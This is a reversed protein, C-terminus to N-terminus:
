GPGGGAHWSWRAARATQATVAASAALRHGVVWLVEDGRAVVPVGPRDARPVGRERLLDAVRQRGDLGLPRIRDGPKWRRVEAGQTRDADVAESWADTGFTKPVSSLPTVVLTGALTAGPGFRLADPERWVRLGGSEVRGGVPADVLAALRGVLAQSRTAEPAWQAVAEALVAHRADDALPALRALPLCGDDLRALSAVVALGARARRAAQAM